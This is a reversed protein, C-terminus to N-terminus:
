PSSRCRTTPRPSGGRSRSACPWGQTARMCAASNRPPRTRARVPAASRMVGAATESWSRRATRSASPQRPSGHRAARGVARPRGQRRHPVSRAFAGGPLRCDGGAQPGPSRACVRPQQLGARLHSQHKLARTYDDIARALDGSKRYALGRRNFTSPSEPDLRIAQTFDAIAATLDGQVFHAHGRGVYYSARQPSLRLAETYDANAGALDGLTLRVRGRGAYSAAHDPRLKIAETFDAAAQAAAGANTRLTGRNLYARAKDDPGHALGAIVASCARLRLAPNRTQNCDGMTDAAAGTAAAMAICALGM